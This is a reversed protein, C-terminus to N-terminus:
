GVVSLRINAFSVSSTWTVESDIDYFIPSNGQSIAKVRSLPPPHRIIPIDSVGDAM